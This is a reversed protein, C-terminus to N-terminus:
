GPSGGQGDLRARWERVAAEDVPADWGKPRAAGGIHVADIGAALLEPLHELRLGGGVLIQPEYGPEGNRAAEVLLVPIGDDVGLASGATLYTDLGPLDALQKRLADRDTARDIARHFTWSCGDLEAVLREVAVLDAHGQADLFGLVFEEAGEARLERAKRVLVDIDGAAFGDAVRLMVRLPIDVAARIKAFTACSPTLGDAAMDTVLELRDAGGAQAAVADEADLAIVELVARNSM